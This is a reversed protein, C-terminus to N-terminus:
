TSSPLSPADPERAFLLAALIEEVTLTLVMDGQRFMLAHTSYKSVTTRESIQHTQIDSM